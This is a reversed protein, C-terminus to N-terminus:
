GINKEDLIFRHIAGDYWYNDRGDCYVPVIGNRDLVEDTIKSHYGWTYAYFPQYRPHSDLFSKCKDIYLEFEMAAMGSVDDHGFGHLSLTINESMMVENNLHEKQIYMNRLLDAEDLDSYKKWHNDFWPDHSVGDLYAVSLFLTVPIQQEELWPLVELVSQYGDDCTLVSYRKFRFFDNRLHHMAETISIINSKKKLVSVIKKFEGLAMWNDVIGYKPEFVDSVQHFCFVRIPKVFLNRIKRCLKKTLKGLTM